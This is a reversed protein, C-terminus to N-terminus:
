TGVDEEEILAVATDFLVAANAVLTGKEFTELKRLELKEGETAVTTPGVSVEIATEIVDTETRVLSKTLEVIAIDDFSPVVVNNLGMIGAVDIALSVAGDGEVAATVDLTLSNESYVEVGSVVKLAPSVMNELAVDSAAELRASERGSSLVVDNVM